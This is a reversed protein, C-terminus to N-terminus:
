DLVNWTALSFPAARGERAEEALIRRCSYSHATCDTHVRNRSRESLWGQLHSQMSGPARRACSGDLLAKGLVSPCGACHSCTSSRLPCPPSSPLLLLFAGCLPVDGAADSQRVESDVMDQAERQITLNVESLILVNQGGGGLDFSKSRPVTPVIPITRLAFPM